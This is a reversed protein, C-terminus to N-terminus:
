LTQVITINHFQMPPTTWYVQSLWNTVFMRVGINFEKIKCAYTWYKFQKEVFFCFLVSTEGRKIDFAHTM